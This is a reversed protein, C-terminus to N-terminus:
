AASTRRQDVPRLAASREALNVAGRRGSTAPLIAAIRAAHRQLVRELRAPTGLDSWGCAAIRLVRLRAVNPGMIDRSFDIEPLARFSTSPQRRRPASAAALSRLRRVAGPHRREFLQLLAQANGVIIFSNLLAGGTALLAALEAGPKEVFRRVHRPEGARAEGPVVYGLDPECDGPDFGLLLIERPFRRAQRAAEIMGAALVAESTFFHDSPLVTVFARADRRLIELVAHLIGIGTGRQLPEVLLNSTPLEASLGRWWRRHERTVTVIIRGPPALARARQLAAHLLSAGRGLACYQKPVPIGEATVTLHRMRRGHGGALVVVWDHRDNAHSM